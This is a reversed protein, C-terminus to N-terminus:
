HTQVRDMVTRGICQGQTLGDEIGMRYHIGGYLRSIAAENAADTFSAFSRVGLGRRVHTTDIFPTSGLLATLIEAAAASATSHGSTYEPFPPTPILPEWNPDIHEQIYSVPRLVTVTYKEKWCSIFADALGIGVLAHLEVTKDLPLQQEESIQNVISVWHGPPTGTMGPADAWFLAIAKQEATLTQSMDYVERAQAYFASDPEESYPVPDAPKCADATILALPRLDGWYPMTPKTQSVSTPVWYGPGTPPTYPKNKLELYGDTEIWAVIAQGLSQGHATSRELIDPSLGSEELAALQQDRLQDFAAQSSPSEFLAKAVTAAASAAVAPWNYPGGEPQPLAPMDNLQGQLSKYNSMGPVVAEYLTVGTYAYIRAAVPPSLKDAQVQEVLLQMWERALASSDEAVRSSGVSIGQEGVGPDHTQDDHIIIDGETLGASAVPEFSHDNFMLGQGQLKMSFRDAAPLGGDIAEVTFEYVANEVIKENVTTISRAQGTMTVRNKDVKFSDVKLSYVIMGFNVQDLEMHPDSFPGPGPAGLTGWAASCSMSDRDFTFITPQGPGLLYSGQGQAMGAPAVQGVCAVGTLWVMVLVIVRVITQKLRAAAFTQKLLKTWNM